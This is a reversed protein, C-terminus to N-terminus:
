APKTYTSKVAMLLELLSARGLKWGNSLTMELQVWGSLKDRTVYNIGV